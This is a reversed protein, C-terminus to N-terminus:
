PAGAAPAVRNLLEGLVVLDLYATVRVVKEDRMTMVWAYDNVYPRGDLATATGRWRAVVVDGEAILERVEAQIPGTLRSVIPGAGDRLFQARGTYTVPENARAVTWEVDDALISYFSDEDSVGLAFADRVLDANRQQQGGRVSNEANSSCGIMVTAALAGVM